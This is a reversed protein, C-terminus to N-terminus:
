KMMKKIEKHAGFYIRIFDKAPEGRIIRQLLRWFDCWVIAVRSILGMKHKYSLYLRNVIYMRTSQLTPVRYEKSVMHKVHIYEDLICIFGESKSKRYYSYSFDLDEPYAYSVLKEDWKLNWKLFLSKRIVFFFGMAWETEVVGNVTDPFRGLMSKTVHGINRKYYNKTGFLYSLKSSKTLMNDDIGAIMSVHLDNHMREFIKVFTDDYVLVDDDCCVVIDKTAYKMANNRAKTLSPIDQYYYEAAVGKERLSLVMEKVQTADNEQTSQDIVVIQSPVGSCSMISDLTKRLTDPRNMTPILISIDIKKM